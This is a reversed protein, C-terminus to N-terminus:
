SLPKTDLRSLISRATATACPTLPTLETPLEIRNFYPPLRPAQIQAIPAGSEIFDAEGVTGTGLSEKAPTSSANTSTFSRKM